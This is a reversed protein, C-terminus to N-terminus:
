RQNIITRGEDCYKTLLENKIKVAEEPSVNWAAFAQVFGDFHGTKLWQLFATHDDETMEKPRKNALDSLSARVNGKWFYVFFQNDRSITGVSMDGWTGATKQAHEHALRKQRLADTKSPMQPGSGKSRAATPKFLDM